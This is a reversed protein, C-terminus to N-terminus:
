AYGGKYLSSIYYPDHKAVVAIGNEMKVIIVETGSAIEENDMSKAPKSIAGSKRQLLIEGFGDSPVTVIVKALSGELDTESYNLSTEASRLPIFVFFHLLLVVIVAIGASILAILASSMGTYREFLFGSASGVTFFSLILQPSFWPHDPMEFIGNIMDSLLIYLLTLSGSVILVGLYVTELPYGFLGRM